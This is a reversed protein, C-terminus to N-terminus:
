RRAVGVGDVGRHLGSVVTVDRAGRVVVAVLDDGVLAHPTRRGHHEGAPGHLTALTGATAAPRARRRDRVDRRHRVADGSSARRAAAHEDDARRGGAHLEGVLDVAAAARDREGDALVDPQRPGVPAAVDEPPHVGGADEVLAVVLDVVEDAGAVKRRRLQDARGLPARDVEVRERRDAHLMTPPEAPMVSPTAWNEPDSGLM